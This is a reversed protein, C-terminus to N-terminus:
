RRLVDWGLLKKRGRVRAGGCTVNVQNTMTSLMSSSMVMAVRLGIDNYNILILANVM